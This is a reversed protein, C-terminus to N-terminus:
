VRLGDCQCDTTPGGYFVLRVQVGQRASVVLAGSQQVSPFCLPSVHFTLLPALMKARPVNCLRRKGIRFSALWCVGISCNGVRSRCAYSQSITFVRRIEAASGRRSHIFWALM